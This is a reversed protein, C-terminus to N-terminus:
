CDVIFVAAVAAFDWHTMLTGLVASRRMSMSNNTVFDDNKRKIRSALAESSSLYAIIHTKKRWSVASCVRIQHPKEIKRM